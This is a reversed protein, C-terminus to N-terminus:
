RSSSSRAVAGQPAAIARAEGALLRGLLKEMNSRLEDYRPGPAAFSAPDEREPDDSGGAGPQAVAWAMHAQTFELHFQLALLGPGYRFAQNPWAAGTALRSAGAPLDWADDHWQLALFGRDGEALAGLAPDALGEPTLRLRKFGFEPSPSRYVRAGLTRALLQSGLCLGLLPTGAKLCAELFRLERPIWPSALEDYASMEGGYAIVLDYRRPDPPEEGEFIHAFESVDGRRAFFAANNYEFGEKGHRLGLIRAV